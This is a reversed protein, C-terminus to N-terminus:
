NFHIRLVYLIIIVPNIIRYRYTEIIKYKLFVTSYGIDYPSLYDDFIITNRIPTNIGGRHKHVSSQYHVNRNGSSRSGSIGPHKSNIRACIPIPVPCVEVNASRTKEGASIIVFIGHRFRRGNRPIRTPSISGHLKFDPPIRLSHFKENIAYIDDILNIGISIVEVGM